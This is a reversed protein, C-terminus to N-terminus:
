NDDFSENTASQEQNSSGEMGSASSDMSKGSKGKKNNKLDNVRCMDRITKSIRSLAQELQASKEQVTNGDSKNVPWPLKESAEGPFRLIRDYDQGSKMKRTASELVQIGQNIGLDGEDFEINQDFGSGFWIYERKDMSCMSELEVIDKGRELFTLGEIQDFLLYVSSTTIASLLNVTLLNALFLFVMFLFEMEINFINYDVAFNGFMISLLYVLSNGPTDFDQHLHNTFKNGKDDVLTETMQEATVLKASIFMSCGFGVLLYFAFTLPNFIDTCLIGLQVKFKSFYIDISFWDFILIWLIVSSFSATFSRWEKGTEKDFIDLIVDDAIFLVFLLVNVFLRGANSAKLLSVPVHVIGGVKIVQKRKIEQVLRPAQRGLLIILNITFLVIRVIECALYYDYNDYSLISYGAVFLLLLFFFLTQSRVFMSRAFKEWKLSVIFQPVPHEYLESYHLRGLEALPTHYPDFFREKTPDGYIDQIYYNVRRYGNETLRSRWMLGDFLENLLHPALVALNKILGPHTDFLLPSGFYYRERDARITLLDNLIYRAMDQKGDYLAWYFPSIIEGSVNVELVWLDRVGRPAQRLTYEMEDVSNNVMSKTVLNSGENVARTMTKMVFEFVSLWSKEASDTWFGELVASLAYLIAKGFLPFHVPPINYKIHRMGLSRVEHSILIPEHSLTSFIWICKKVIYTVMANPKYFFNQVEDSLEFLRTYVIVGIAVMDQGQMKEMTEDILQKNVHGDEIARSLFKACTDWLWGWADEHAWNWDKPLMSRLTVMVAQGFVPFFEERTGYKLHRISLIYLEENLLNPDSILVTLSGFGSGFLPALEEKTRRFMASIEPSMVGVNFFLSEGFNTAGESFGDEKKSATPDDENEGEELIVSGTKKGVDTKTIVAWSRRIIHVKGSFEGLNRILMGGLYALFKSWAEQGFADWEEDLVTKVTNIIEGVFVPMMSRSWKPTIYAIHRMSMNYLESDLYAVDDAGNVYRQIQSIFRFATVRKPSVFLKQADGANRYINDLAIAGVEEISGVAEVVWSLHRQLLECHEQQLEYIVTTTTGGEDKNEGLIQGKVSALVGEVEEILTASVMAGNLATVVNEVVADFHTADLNLSEHAEALQKGTYEGPGGFAKNLFVKQHEQLNAMDAGEFFKNIRTDALNLENFADVVASVADKGGIRYYLSNQDIESLAEQDEETGASSNNDNISVSADSADEKSHKSM